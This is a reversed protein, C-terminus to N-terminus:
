FQAHLDENLVKVRVQLFYHAGRRTWRVQQKKAFRKAIVQNVASEVFGTSIRESYNPIFPRNAEIYNYFEELAKWTKGFRNNQDYWIELPERIRDVNDLAKYVNGHWM